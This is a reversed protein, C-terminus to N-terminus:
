YISWYMEFGNDGRRKLIASATVAYIIINDSTTIEDM